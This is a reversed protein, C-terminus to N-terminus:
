NSYNNLNLNNLLSIYKNQSTLIKNLAICSINFTMLNKILLVHNVHFPSLSKNKHPIEIEEIDYKSSCVTETDNSNETTANM